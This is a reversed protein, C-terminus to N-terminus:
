ISQEHHNTYQCYHCHQLYFLVIIISYKKKDVVFLNMYVRYVLSTAGRGYPYCFVISKKCQTSSQRGNLKADTTYPHDRFQQFKGEIVKYWGFLKCHSTVRWTWFDDEGIPFLRNCIHRKVTKSEEYMEYGLYFSIDGFSSSSQTFYANEFSFFFSFFIPM